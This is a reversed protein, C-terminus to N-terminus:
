RDGFGDDDELDERETVVPCDVVRVTEMDLFEVIETGEHTCTIDPPPSFHECQECYSHKSVDTYAREQREGVSGRSEASTLEQWVVDSDLKDIDMEDFADEFSEFPDGERRGVDSRFEAEPRTDDERRGVDFGMESGVPESSGSPSSGADGTTEDPDSVGFEPAPGGDSDSFRQSQEGESPTSSERQDLADRFAETDPSDDGQESDAPGDETDDDLAEFPDGERDGVADDLDEFPDDDSM